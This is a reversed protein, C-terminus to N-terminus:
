DTSLTYIIIIIIIKTASYAKSDDHLLFIAVLGIRTIAM